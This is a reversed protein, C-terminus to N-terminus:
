SQMKEDKEQHWEVFEDILTPWAQTDDFSNFNDHNAQLQAQSDISSARMRYSHKIIVFHVVRLM